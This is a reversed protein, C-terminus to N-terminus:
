WFSNGIVAKMIHVNNIIRIINRLILAPQLRDHIIGLLLLGIGAYLEKPARGVQKRVRAIHVASGSIRIEVDECMCARLYLCCQIGGDLQTTLIINEPTAALAIHAQQVGIHLPFLLVQRAEQVRCFVIGAAVAEFSGEENLGLRALWGLVLIIEIHFSNNAEQTLVVQQFVELDIDLNVV